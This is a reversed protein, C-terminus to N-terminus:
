GQIFAGEVMVLTFLTGEMMLNLVPNLLECGCLLLLSVSQGLIIFDQCYGVPLLHQWFIKNSANTRV